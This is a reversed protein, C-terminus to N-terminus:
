KVQIAKKCVGVIKVDFERAELVDTSRGGHKFGDDRFFGKEAGGDREGGEGGVSMGVGVVGGVLRVWM